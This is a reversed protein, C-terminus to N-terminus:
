SFIMNIESYFKELGNKRSISFNECTWNQTCLFHEDNIAYLM